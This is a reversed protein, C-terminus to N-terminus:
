LAKVLFDISERRKNKLIEDVTNWDPDTKYYEGDDDPDLGHVLRDELGFSELLSLIRSMGRQPNGLVIFPKHFLIAMVCGHFSDTVVFEADDFCAIWDEVAPVVRDNLPISIDRPAVSADHMGGSFWSGIMEAIATKEPRADLIYKLVKGQGIRGSSGSSLRRYEDADLLLVPDLVHHAYECDLWEDCITVADAERVSVADFCKLLRSCRELQEYSFELQGTGFSAAYAVRRVNWSSTFELFADEIRGFYKPRWVQDSGVVFADYEGPQIDSYDNVLRPAIVADIFRNVEAAVVPHERVLRKERFIEPGKGRSVVNLALRKAYVLPQKWKPPFMIKVNRDIVDADHGLRMLVTRLAYAQLIGGYNTHLPLTIVAIRM